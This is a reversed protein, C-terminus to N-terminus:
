DNGGYLNNVKIYKYIKSDLYGKNDDIKSRIISSSIDVYPYDDLVIFKSKDFGYMDIYHMVDINNRNLVIINYKLIDEINMWKNFNIINDAGIILYIDKRTYYKNYENLIQYTYELTNNINDIIINEKELYKLMNIRLKLDILSTKNWYSGTPVIYIKNLYYNDLLYNVIKEHGIHVPNFSGVYIGIKM